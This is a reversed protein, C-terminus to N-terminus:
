QDDWEPTGPDLADDEDSAMDGDVLILPRFLGEGVGGTTLLLRECELM